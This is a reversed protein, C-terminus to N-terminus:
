LWLFVEVENRISGKNTHQMSTKTVDALSKRFNALSKKYVPRFVIEPGPLVSLLSLLSLFYRNVASHTTLWILNYLTPLPDVEATPVYLRFAGCCNLPFQPSPHPSTHPFTPIRLSVPPRPPPPQTSTVLIQITPSNM